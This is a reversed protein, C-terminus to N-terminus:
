FIVYCKLRFIKVKPDNDMYLRHRFPMKQMIFPLVSLGFYYQFDASVMRGTFTVLPTLGMRSIGGLLHIKVNSHKHKGIKGGDARLLDNGRKNWNKYSALRIEITTEDIVVIDDYTENYQKCFCVYIFRKVRNDPSVIQCYKTNVKKWGLKNIYDRITRKAAVLSLKNKIQGCTVFPNQLLLKNIALMGEDSILLKGRNDRPRDQISGYRRWKLILRRIGRTGIEISYLEAALRQVIAIKDGYRINKLKSCIAIIKTRAQISFPM